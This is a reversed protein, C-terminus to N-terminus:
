SDMSIPVQDRVRELEQRWSKVEKAIEEGSKEIISNFKSELIDFEEEKERLTDKAVTHDLTLETLKDELEMVKTDMSIKYTEWDERDKATNNKEVIAAKEAEM